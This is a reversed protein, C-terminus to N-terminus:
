FESNREREYRELAARIEEWSFGRRQLGAAARGVAARDELDCGRLKKQLFADVSDETDPLEALAADWLDKPIGRRFFEQRIRAPGYGRAGYHRVLASAYAGEDLAGIDRLWAAAEEAEAQSEGKEMLKRVLEKESYPRAGLLAAARERASEPRKGPM